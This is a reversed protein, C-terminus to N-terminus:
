LAHGRREGRLVVWGLDLGREVGPPPVTTQEIGVGHLALPAAGGTLRVDDLHRRRVDRGLEVGTVTEVVRHLVDEDPELPHTPPAREPQRAGIVGADGGLVHHLAQEGLFAEGAEVDSALGEHLAHPGVDPLRARADEVLELRDSARGVPGAGVERQVLVERARHALHENLQVLLAQDVAAVVDDVPARAAQGRQGVLLRLLLFHVATDPVDAIREGVAVPVDGDGGGPRLREETIGRHRHMGVVLAVPPEDAPGELQREGASANGDDGVLRHIGGEAAAGDLHRRRVVGGVELDAAAM